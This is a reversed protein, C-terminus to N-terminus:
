MTLSQNPLMKVKQGFHKRKDLITHYNMLWFICQLYICMVKTKIRKILVYEDNLDRKLLSPYLIFQILYICMVKTRIGKILVYEDKLDRKLPSPYKM